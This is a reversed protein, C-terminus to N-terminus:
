DGIFFFKTPYFDLTVKKRLYQRVLLNLECPRPFKPAGSFGGLASDFTRELHAACGDMATLVLSGVDELNPASPAVATALQEM